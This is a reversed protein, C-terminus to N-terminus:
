KTIALKQEYKNSTITINNISTISPIGHVQGRHCSQRPHNCADQLQYISADQQKQVGANHMLLSIASHM